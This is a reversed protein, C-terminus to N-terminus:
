GRMIYDDIAAQAGEPLPRGALQAALSQALREGFWWGPEKGDWCRTAKGALRADRGCPEKTFVFKLSEGRGKVKKKIHVKSRSGAGSAALKPKDTFQGSPADHFPNGHIGFEAGKGKSKSKVEVLQGLDECFDEFAVANAPSDYLYDNYAILIAQFVEPKTIWVHPMVHVAFEIGEIILSVEGPALLGNEVIWNYLIEAHMRSQFRFYVEADSYKQGYNPIVAGTGSFEIGAGSPNMPTGVLTNIVGEHLNGARPVADGLIAPSPRPGLIGLKRLDEEPLIGKLAEVDADMEERDFKKEFM